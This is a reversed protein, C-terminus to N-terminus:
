GNSKTAPPELPPIGHIVGYSNLVHAVPQFFHKWVFGMLQPFYTRAIGLLDTVRNVVDYPADAGVVQKPFAQRMWEDLQVLAKYAENSEVKELREIAASLSNGQSLIETVVPSEPWEMNMHQEFADCIARTVAGSSAKHDESLDDWTEPWDEPNGGLSIMHDRALKYDLRLLEDPHMFKKAQKRTENVTYVLLRSAEWVDAAIQLSHTWHPHGEKIDKIRSYDGEVAYQLATLKHLLIDREEQIDSLKRGWVLRQQESGALAQKGQQIAQDCAMLEKILDDQSLARLQQETYTM